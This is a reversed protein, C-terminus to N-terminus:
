LCHIRTRHKGQVPQNSLVEDYAVDDGEPDDNYGSRDKKWPKLV